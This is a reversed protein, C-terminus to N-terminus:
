RSIVCLIYSHGILQGMVGDDDDHVSQYEKEQRSHGQSGRRVGPDDISGIHVNGVVGPLSGVTGACAGVGAATHEHSAGPSHSSSM